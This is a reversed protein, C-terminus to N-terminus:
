GWRMEDDFLFALTEIFEHVRALNSSLFITWVGLSLFFCLYAAAAAVVRHRLDLFFFLTPHRRASEIQTYICPRAPVPLQRPPGAHRKVMRTIPASDVTCAHVISPKILISVSISTNM